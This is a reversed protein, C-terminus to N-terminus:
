TPMQILNLHTGEYNNVYTEFDFNEPLEVRTETMQMYTITKCLLVFICFNIFNQKIILTFDPNIEQKGESV